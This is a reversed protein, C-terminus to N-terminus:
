AETRTHEGTGGRRKGTCDGGQALRIAPSRGVSRGRVLFGKRGWQAGNRLPAPPAAATQDATEVEAAAARWLANQCGGSWAVFSEGGFVVEAHDM